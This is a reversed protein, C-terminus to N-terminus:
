PLQRALRTLQIEKRKLAIFKAPFEKIPMRSKKNLLGKVYADKLGKRNCAAWQKSQARRKQTPKKYYLKHGLLWRCRDSAYRRRTPPVFKKCGCACLLKRKNRTLLRQMGLGSKYYLRHSCFKTAFQRPKHNASDPPVERGCGCACLKKVPVQEVATTMTQKSSSM